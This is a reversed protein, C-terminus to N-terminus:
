LQFCERNLVILAQDVHQFLAITTLVPTLRSQLASRASATAAGSAAAVSARRARSAKPARKGVSAPWCRAM